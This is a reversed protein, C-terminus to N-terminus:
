PKKFSNTRPFNDENNNNKILAQVGGQKEEGGRDRGWGWGGCARGRWVCVGEGGSIESGPATAEM